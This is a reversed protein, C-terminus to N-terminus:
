CKKETKDNKSTTSSKKYANGTSNEMWIKLKQEHEKRSCRSIGIRRLNTRKIEHHQEKLYTNIIRKYKEGEAKVIKWDQNRILPFSTKEPM